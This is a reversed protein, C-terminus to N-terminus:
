FASGYRFEALGKQGSVRSPFCTMRDVPGSPVHPAVWFAARYRNSSKQAVRGQPAEGGFGQLLRECHDPPCRSLVEWLVGTSRRYGM